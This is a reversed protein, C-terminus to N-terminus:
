LMQQKRMRIPETMSVSIGINNRLGQLALRKVEKVDCSPEALLNNIQTTLKRETPSETLPLEKFDPNLYAPNGIVQNIVRM